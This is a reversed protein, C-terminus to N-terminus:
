TPILLDVRMRNWEGSVLSATRLLAGIQSKEIFAVISLVNELRILETCRRVRVTAVFDKTNTWSPVPERQVIAESSNSQRGIDDERSNADRGRHGLPKYPRHDAEM